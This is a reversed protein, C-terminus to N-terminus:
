RDYDEEHAFGEDHEAFMTSNDDHEAEIEADREAGNGDQSRAEGEDERDNESEEQVPSQLSDPGAEDGSGEFSDQLGNKASIVASPAAM